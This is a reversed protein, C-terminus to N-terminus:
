CKFYHHKFKGHKKKKGKKSKNKKKAEKSEIAEILLAEFENSTITDGEVRIKLNNRKGIEPRGKRIEAFYGVIRKKVIPTGHIDHGCSSCKLESQHVEKDADDVQVQTASPALKALVHDRSYPYLGTGRFGGICHTPKLSTDWLKGILGPFEEKSVTSGRTQLKYEKLIAKWAKKLPGFVGVDFPQLLHTCNPPLCLITVNNARAKRILELSIHSHHGDQFLIVPATKTLHSVAPIFLKTFWSLYCESDMWGSENIGYLTGAPGKEVWRKYLNKGKYLIFPPLREGSASGGCHVTFYQRGSGGGVEHVARSGRRALITTSVPSTCFATEDCNWLRCSIDPNKPNLGSTAFIKDLNDFWANIVESNGAQARKKSLHQPKRKSLCPWRGLFRRWWDHGPVGGTFPNPKKTERLYDYIVADVVDKTVGYGMDALTVCSLVIDQEESPTFVTPGGACVKKSKGSLHDHLTSKPIGYKLAAARMSRAQGGQVDAIAQKITESIKEAM